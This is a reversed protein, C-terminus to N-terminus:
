QPVEQLDAKLAERARHVRMKLASTSANLMETMEDYSRLEVHKLLFAERQDPPLRSIARELRDRLEARELDGAPDLSSELQVGPADDDDDDLRVARRRKERRFHDRCANAVIQFIWSGFREPKRCRALRTYAKVFTAQVLDAAVDSDGTMRIAYRTLSDQHRRVLVRFAERDGELTREVLAGDGTEAPTQANTPAM